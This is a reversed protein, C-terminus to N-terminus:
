TQYAQQRKMTEPFNHEANRHSATNQMGIPLQTRCEWPFNHEANGHSTTNQMGM